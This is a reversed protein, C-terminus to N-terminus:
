ENHSNSSDSELATAHQMQSYKGCDGMAGVSKTTRFMILLVHVTRGVDRLVAVLVPWVWQSHGSHLVPHWM